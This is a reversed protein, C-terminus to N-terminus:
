RGTRLLLDFLALYKLLVADTNHNREFHVECAASAARWSDKQAILQGLRAAMDDLDSCVITGVQGPNIEPRVFSMSPVGRAWAQLFTNPFGERDSTNVLVSADDFHRGIQSFPVFGVFNLNRVGTALARMKQFYAHDPDNANDAGGVMVFKKSPFRSALEIFLEPRKVPKFIGVWVVAGEHAARGANPEAHCNPVIVGERGFGKALLERQHINQVLIADAARLAARFLWEDRRPLGSVSRPQFERDSACAYVFRKGRTRAYFAAAAARFGAVRYYVIDPEIRDLGAVVDTMLPHFFRLGKIGRGGPPPIRHVEIGNRNEFAPQGYDGTLVSVRVGSAQLLGAVIAQQVEGGGAFEIGASSNLIPYLNM